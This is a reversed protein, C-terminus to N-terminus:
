IADGIRALSEKRAKDKARLAHRKSQFVKVNMSLRGKANMKVTIQAANIDSGMYDVVRRTVRYELLTHVMDHIYVPAIWLGRKAIQGHIWNTIKMYREDM